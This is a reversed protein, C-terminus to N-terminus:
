IHKYKEFHGLALNPFLYQGISFVSEISTVHCFELIKACILTYM